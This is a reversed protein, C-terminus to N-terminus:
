FREVSSPHVLDDSDVRQRSTTLVLSAYSFVRVTREEDAVYLHRQSEDLGLSLPGGRLGSRKTLLQVPRMQGSNNDGYDLMYVAENYLDAVFVRGSKDACISSPFFPRLTPRPLTSSESSEVKFCEQSKSPAWHWRVTQGDATM